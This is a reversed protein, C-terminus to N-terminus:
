IDLYYSDHATEIGFGCYKYLSLAKKNKAEVSLKIDEIEQDLIKKMTEILIKKGIGRGRFSKLVALDCIFAENNETVVSINGVTEGDLLGVYMKKGPIKVNEEYYKKEEEETTDFGDMGIRVVDNLDGDCTERLSFNKLDYSENSWSELDFKMRYSSSQYEAGTSNIFAKGSESEQDNILRLRKINKESCLAKAEEFLTTFIGSRRHSPHVGGTVIAQGEVFSPYIGLYGILSEEKYMLYTNKKEKPLYPSDDTSQHPKDFEECVKILSKVDEFSQENLGEERFIKQKNGIEM